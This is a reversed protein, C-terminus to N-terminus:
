NLHVVHQPGPAARLRRPLTGDDPMGARLWAGVAAADAVTALPGLRM